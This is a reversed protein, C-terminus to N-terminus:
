CSKYLHTRDASHAACRLSLESFTLDYGLYKACFKYRVGVAEGQEKVDGSLGGARHAAESATSTSLLRGSCVFM